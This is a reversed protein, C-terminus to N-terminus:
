LYVGYQYLCTPRTEDGHSQPVMHWLADLNCFASLHFACPLIFRQAFVLARSTFFLLGRQISAGAHAASPQLHTRCDFACFGFVFFSLSLGFGLVIWRLLQPLYQSWVFVQSFLCLAPALALGLATSALLYLLLVVILYAPRSFRRILKDLFSQAPPNKSDDEAFSIPKDHNDM